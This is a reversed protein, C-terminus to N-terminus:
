QCHINMRHAMSLTSLKKKGDIDSMLFSLIMLISFESTARWEDGDDKSGAYDSEARSSRRDAQNYDRRDEGGVTTNQCEHESRWTNNSYPHHRRDCDCLLRIHRESCWDVSPNNIDCCWCITPENTHTWITLLFMSKPRFSRFYLLLLIINACYIICSCEVYAM